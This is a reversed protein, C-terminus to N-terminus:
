QPLRVVVRGNQVSTKTGLATTIKDLRAAIKRSREASPYIPRFREGEIWIPTARIQWAGTEKWWLDFIASEMREGERQDFIFNGMSYLVPRNKYVGIGQLTHPHHGLICDAGADILARATKEQRKSPMDEYEEGWHVSVLLLDCQKRAAAVAACAAEPDRDYKSYSGHDFSLDTFAVAGIKVQGVQAFTPDMGKERDRRAGVYAIQNQELIDLTQLVGERGANLFHNNALSVLDIGGARLVQVTKPAARFCCNSPDHPGETSLPCELNAVTFNAQTLQRRVKDVISDPGNRSISRGVNRDLMIDGVAVM